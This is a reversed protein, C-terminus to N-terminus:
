QGMGQTAERQIGEAIESAGRYGHRMQGRLWQPNALRMRLTRAIEDALPRARPADPDAADVHVLAAVGGLLANAASFGGEFDAFAPGTLVDVDAMDRVHVHLDTGAVRAEFSAHAPASVGDRDLAHGAADLFVRGLDNRDRWGDASIAAGVGLGYNGSAAGFIRRLDDTAGLPNFAVDEDLAAVAHVADDFLAILGPFM